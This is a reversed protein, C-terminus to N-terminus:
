SLFMTVTEKFRRSKPMEGDRYYRWRIPIIEEKPYNSFWKGDKYYGSDFFYDTEVEVLISTTLLIDFSKIINHNLALPYYPMTQWEGSKYAQIDIDFITM